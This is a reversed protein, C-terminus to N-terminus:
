RKERLKKEPFEWARVFKGQARDRLPTSDLIKGVGGPRRQVGSVSKLERTRPNVSKYLTHFGCVSRKRTVRFLRRSGALQLSEIPQGNRPVGQKRTRPRGAFQVSMRPVSIARNQDSM